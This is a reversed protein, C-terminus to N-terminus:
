FLRPCGQLRNSCRPWAKLELVYWRIQCSVLFPRRPGRRSRRRRFFPFPLPFSPLRPSSFVRGRFGLKKNFNRPQRSLFLPVMRAFKLSGRSTSPSPLRNLYFHSASGHHPFGNFFFRKLFRFADTNLQCPSLPSVLLTLPTCSLLFVLFYVATSASPSKETRTLACVPISFPRFLGGSPV